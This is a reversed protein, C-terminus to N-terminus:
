AAAAPAEAPTAAKARTAKPTKALAKKVKTAQATQLKEVQKAVTPHLGSIRAKNTKPDRIQELITDMARTLRGSVNVVNLTGDQLLAGQYHVDLPGRKVEEGINLVRTLHGVTKGGVKVEVQGTIHTGAKATRVSKKTMSLKLAGFRITNPRTGTM